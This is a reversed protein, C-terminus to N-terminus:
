EKDFDKFKSNVVSMQMVSLLIILLVSVTMVIIMMLIMVGIRVIKSSRALHLNEWLIGGPEM